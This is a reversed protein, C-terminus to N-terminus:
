SGPPIDLSSVEGYLDRRDAPPLEVDWSTPVETRPAMGAERTENMLWIAADLNAIINTRVLDTLEVGSLETFRELLAVEDPTISVTM